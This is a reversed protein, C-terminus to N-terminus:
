KRRISFTGQGNNKTVTDLTEFRKPTMQNQSISLVQKFFDVNSARLALSFNTEQAVM